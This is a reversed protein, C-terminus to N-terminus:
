RMSVDGNLQAYLQKVSKVMGRVKAVTKPTNAKINDLGDALTKLLEITLQSLQKFLKAGSATLTQRFPEIDFTQISKGIKKLFEMINAQVDKSLEVLKKDQSKVREVFGKFDSAANALLPRVFYAIKKVLEANYKFMVESLKTNFAYAFAAQSVPKGKVIRQLNVRIQNNGKTFTAKMINGPSLTVKFIM